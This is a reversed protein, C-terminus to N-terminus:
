PRRRKARKAQRRMARNGGAEVFARQKEATERLEASRVEVGIAQLRVAIEIAEQDNM